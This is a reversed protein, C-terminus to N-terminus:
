QFINSVILRNNKTDIIADAGIPMTFKRDGHGYPFNYTVPFDVDIFYQKLVEEITFTTEKPETNENEIFNGLILGNIKSFVGAQKLQALYRDIRYSEEGVDELFLICNTYDPSYPTGLLHAVMSLCGGLLTGKAQGDNWSQTINTDFQSQYISELNNIQGWFHKETFSEMKQDMEVAVMSGSLSPLKTKEWIALQLTTIDSYGIIVKPNKKILDYDLKDLLRLCGWGGRACIIASIEPDSYMQHVDDVRLQDTGALYGYKAKLSEGRVISFSLNQLYQIGNELKEPDPQFGPAIIGIKSNKQIRALM